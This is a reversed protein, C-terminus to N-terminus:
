RIPLRGSSRRQAEWALQRVWAQRLVADMGAPANLNTAAVQTRAQLLGQTIVQAAVYSGALTPHLGDQQYVQVNADLGLVERWVEGAPLIRSKSALAAARYSQSVLEFGNKQTQYPWVMYLAPTVGHRRAEDAWRVAWQRLNIQNEPLTSPGQQLVVYDWRGAALLRRSRGDNWHDELNTGGPTVAVAHVRVGASAALMQVLRPLDNAATLSNGLFLVRLERRQRLAMAVRADRVNPAPQVALDPPPLLLVVAPIAVLLLRFGATSSTPENM